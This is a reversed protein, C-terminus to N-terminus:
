LKPHNTLIFSVLLSHADHQLKAKHTNQSLIFFPPLFLYTPV